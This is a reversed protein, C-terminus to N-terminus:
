LSVQNKDIAVDIGFETRLTDDSLLHRTDSVPVPLVNVPFPLTGPVNSGAGFRM